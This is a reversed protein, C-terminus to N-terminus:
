ECYDHIQLVVLPLASGNVTSPFQSVIFSQLKITIQDYINATYDTQTSNANTKNSEDRESLLTLCFQHLLLPKM